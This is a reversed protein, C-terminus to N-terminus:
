IIDSDGPEREAESLMVLKVESAEYKGQYPGHAGGVFELKVKKVVKLFVGGNADGDTDTCEINVENVPSCSGSLHFAGYADTRTEAGNVTKVRIDSLPKGDVDTVSGKVDFTIYEMGQWDQGDKKECGTLIFLMAIVVSVFSKKVM